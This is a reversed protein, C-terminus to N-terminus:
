TLEGNKYGGSYGEAMHFSEVFGGIGTDWGFAREGEVWRCLPEISALGETRASLHHLGERGSTIQRASRTGMLCQRNGRRDYGLFLHRLV